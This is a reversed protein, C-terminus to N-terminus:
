FVVMNDRHVLEPEDVYGLIEEIQSSALGIIKEAEVSGYNILGRAVARGSAADVCDVLDGREFRGELRQVGVPLLSKGSDILVAVAGADLFLRGSARLRGALWQKRAAIRGAGARLVTGPFKGNAIDALREMDHGSCIVTSAGSRAARAAAQLKTLMGGRGLAGGPGAYAELAADGAMAERILRANSQHRPDADFLGQQDTLIVLYEAEVLNTVLAGLTDNDGFQIEETVVTDNENVVPVIGLELMSRLASRANLYRTRDNLDAETLLIQATQVSFHSFANQYAQALGMQGVAAAAQLRFLEHPRSKWGLRQMGEAIAGSSVLVIDIGRDRLDAGVTALQEILSHNLGAEPDTLLSSGLKIVWRQRDSGRGTNDSM